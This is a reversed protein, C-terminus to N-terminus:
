QIRVPPNFLFQVGGFYRRRGVGSGLAGAFDQSFSEVTGFIGFRNTHWYDVRGRVVLLWTPEDLFSATGRSYTSGVSLFTAPAIPGDLRVGFVSFTSSSPRRDQQIAAVPGTPGPQLLNFYSPYYEFEGALAMRNIRKQILMRFLYSNESDRMVGGAVDFLLDSRLAAGYSLVVSHFPHSFAEFDTIDTFGPQDQTVSALAPFSSVDTTTLAFLRSGGVLGTPAASMDASAAALLMAYRSIGGRVTPVSPLFTIAANDNDFSYPSFRLLSYAASLRQRESLRRSISATAAVANQSAGIGPNSLASVDTLSYDIRASVNTRRTLSRYVTAANAFERFSSRPLAFVNDSLARAPDATKVFSSGLAMGSRAGFPQDYAFDVAHNWRVDHQGNLLFEFEPRYLMGFSRKGPQRKVYSVGFDVFLLAAPSISGSSQLVDDVGGSITLPGTLRWGNRQGFAPMAEM